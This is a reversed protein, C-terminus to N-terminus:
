EWFIESEKDHCYKLFSYLNLTLDDNLKTKEEATMSSIIDTLDEKSNLLSSLGSFSDQVLKDKIDYDINNVKIKSIKKSM